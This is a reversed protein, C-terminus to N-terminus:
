DEVPAFTLVRKPNEVLLTHIQDHSMGKHRMLPVVNTLIHDYGWGGYRRLMHKTWHDGSLLIQSLYGEDILQIIENVRQADNPTDLVCFEPNLYSEVGFCDYELYCGTEALKRRFTPTFCCIDIHSIITRNLDAGANDLTKVVEMVVDEHDKQRPLKTSARMPPHINLAAGTDRQAHASARLIKRETKSLPWILGIEGIIGARLGTDSVGVTIERVMQEALAEESRDAPSGSEYSSSLAFFGTSMIINLGTARAIRRLGLPARGMSSTCTLEVITDGGARKYFMAEDIATQEDRLALNDLNHSYHYRIWNLNELSVPQYALEQESAESPPTFIKSASLLHEHPLTVGLSDGDILGLVTQVKGALEEQRM